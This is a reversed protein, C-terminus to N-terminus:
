SELVLFRPMSTILHLYRLVLSCRPLTRELPLVALWSGRPHGHRVWGTGGGLDTGGDRSRVEEEGLAAGGRGLGLARM